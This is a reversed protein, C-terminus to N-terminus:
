PCVEENKSEVNSDKVALIDACAFVMATVVNSNQVTHDICFEDTNLVKNSDLVYSGNEFKLNKEHFQEALFYKDNAGSSCKPYGYVLDFLTANKSQILNENIIGYEPITSVCNAANTLYVSQHGCCKRIKILKSPALLSDAGKANNPLCVIAVDKDICYNDLDIFLNREGLYVSGNSFLAINNFIEPHECKPRQERARLFRPSEGHPTFYSQKAILYILPWWKDNPTGITCEENRDLREGIPCCKNIEIPSPARVATVDNIKVIFLILIIPLYLYTAM